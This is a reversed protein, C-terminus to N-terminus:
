GGNVTGAYAVFSGDPLQKSVFSEVAGVASNNPDALTNLNPAIPAPGIPQWTPAPLTRDELPEVAPRVRQGAGRKGRRSKCRAKGTSGRFGSAWAALRNSLSM